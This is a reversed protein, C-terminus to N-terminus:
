PWPRENEKDRSGKAWEWKEFSLGKPYEKPNPSWPFFILGHIVGRGDTMNKEKTTVYKVYMHFGEVPSSGRMKAQFHFHANNLLAKIKTVSAEAPGRRGKSTIKKKLQLKIPGM